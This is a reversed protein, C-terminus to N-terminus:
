RGPGHRRPARVPAPTTASPAAGADPGGAPEDAAPLKVHPAGANRTSEHPGFAVLAVVAAAAFASAAAGGTLALKRRRQKALAQKEAARKRRQEAIAAFVRRDMAEIEEPALPEVHRAADFLQQIFPPPPGELNIWRRADDNM